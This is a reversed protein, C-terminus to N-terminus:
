GAGTLPRLVGCIESCHLRLARREALDIAEPVPADLHVGGRNYEATVDAVAVKVISRHAVVEMQEEPLRDSRM